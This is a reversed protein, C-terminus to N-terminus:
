SQVKKLQNQEGQPRKPLTPAAHRVLAHLRSTDATDPGQQARDQADPKRGSGSPKQHLSGASSHNEQIGEPTKSASVWTNRLLRVLSTHKYPSKWRTRRSSIEKAFSTLIFGSSSTDLSSDVHLSRGVLGTLATPPPARHQAKQTERADASPRPM